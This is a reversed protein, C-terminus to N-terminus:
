RHSSRCHNLEAASQEPSQEHDATEAAEGDCWVVALTKAVGPVGELLVHGDALLAILMLETMKEQGIVYKAIEDRVATTKESFGELAIRNEFQNEM